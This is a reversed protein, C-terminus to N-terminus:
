RAASAWVLKSGLLIIRHRRKFREWVLGFAGGNAVYNAASIGPNVFAFPESGAGLRFHTSPNAASPCIAGSFVQSVIARNPADMMRNTFVIGNYAATQEIYPLIAYSWAWGSGRLDRLGRAANTPGKWIGGAPFARNASEYNLAALGIQKLNNSCQMRRAAERAAQVAPLLLGVLIGIIAIVVLLEVLTFGGRKSM